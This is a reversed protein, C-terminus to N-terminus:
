RSLHSEKQRLVEYLLLTTANSVNLSDAIGLMPIKVSIDASDLWPKSLGVQERGVIIAVNEKLDVQTYIEKAAPTTAVIQIHLEKMLAIAEESSTEFIPLSFFTGVSSRIVNPNFVDTCKDCVIVADVKTADASRLISGLNGPKEIAEAILLFPKEKGKLFHNLEALGKTTIAATALLGDPRDRYSVKEFIAKPVRWVLAGARRIKEILEPENEGLFLEPCYFLEKIETKTQCARSVERYGEILYEGTM